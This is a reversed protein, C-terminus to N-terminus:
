WLVLGGSVIFRENMLEFRYAFAGSSFCSTEGQTGSFARADQFGGFRRKYPMRSPHLHGSAKKRSFFGVCAYPRAPLVSAFGASLKLM